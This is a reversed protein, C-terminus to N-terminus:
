VSFPPFCIATLRYTTNNALQSAATLRIGDGQEGEVGGLWQAGGCIVIGTSRKASDLEEARYLVLIPDFNLPVFAQTGLAGSAGATVTLPDSVVVGLNALDLGNLAYSVRSFWAEMTGHYRQLNEDKSLLTKGPNPPAELIAM